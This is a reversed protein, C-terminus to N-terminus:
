RGGKIADQIMQFKKSLMRVTASYKLSNESLRVMERELSVTNNDLSTGPDDRTIVQFGSPSNGPGSFHMANTTVQSLGGSNMQKGLEKQFDIDKAKYGPTEENAINAALIKHRAFRVKLIREMSPVVGGFMGDIM